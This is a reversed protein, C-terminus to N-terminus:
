DACSRDSTGEFAPVARQDAEARTEAPGNADIDDILWSMEAIERRQAESIEIALECVRVDDIQSRESTLIAISHHPIMASMYSTDDVTTQSRVLFLAVAFVLVGGIAIGVNLRTNRYMSLMFGLMIIAMSAGMLLAMYTRTESWRVHDWAFTNLYMLIFMVVTATAVMAAFRVYSMRM